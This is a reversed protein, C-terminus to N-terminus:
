EWNEPKPCEKRWATESAPLSRRILLRHIEEVGETKDSLTYGKPGSSALKDLGGIARAQTRIITRANVLEREDGSVRRLWGVRTVSYGYRGPLTVIKLGPRMDPEETLLNRLRKRDADDVAAAADAAAAHVVQLAVGLRTMREGRELQYDELVARVEPDARHSFLSNRIATGSVM